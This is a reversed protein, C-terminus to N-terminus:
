SSLCLTPALDQSLADTPLGAPGRAYTYDVTELAGDVTMSDVKLSSAVPQRTLLSTGERLYTARAAKDDAAEEETSFLLRSTTSLADGDAVVLSATALPVQMGSIGLEERIQEVQAPPLQSGIVAALDTCTQGDRTLYAYQPDGDAGLVQSIENSARLSESNGAIVDLVREYDGSVMLHEGPLLVLESERAPYGGVLGTSPDLKTIDAELRRGGEVEFGRWGADVMEDAVEDLDLGSDMGYLQVFSGSGPPGVGVAASWDIDLATFATEDANMSMLDVAYDNDIWPNDQEAHLYREIQVDAAGTDVDDIGLREEAQLQARIEAYSADIPIYGLAEQVSGASEESSSGRNSFWVAAGVAVVLVFVVVAGLVVPLGGFRPGKPSSSAADPQAM